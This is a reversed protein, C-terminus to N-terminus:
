LYFAQLAWEFNHDTIGNFANYMYIHMVPKGCQCLAFLLVVFLRATQLM